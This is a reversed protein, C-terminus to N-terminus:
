GHMCMHKGFIGFTVSHTCLYMRYHGAFVGGASKALTGVHTNKNQM